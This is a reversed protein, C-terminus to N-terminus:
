GRLRRAETLRESNSMAMWAAVDAEIEADTMNPRGNSGRPGDGEMEAAVEGLTLQGIEWPKLGNKRLVRYVNAWNM